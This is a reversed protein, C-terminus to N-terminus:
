QGSVALSEHWSFSRIEHSSGSSRISASASAGSAATTWGSAGGTTGKVAADVVRRVRADFNRRDAELQGDLDEVKKRLLAVEKTNEETRKANKSMESKLEEVQASTALLEM